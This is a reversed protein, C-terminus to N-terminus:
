KKKNGDRTIIILNIKEIEVLPFLFNHLSDKEKKNNVLKNIKKLSDEDISEENTWDSLSFSRDLWKNNLNAPLNTVTAISSKKFNRLSDIFFIEKVFSIYVPDIFWLGKLVSDLLLFTSPSSMEKDDNRSSTIEFLIGDTEPNFQFKGPIVPASELNIVPDTSLFARIKDKKVVKFPSGTTFLNNLFFNM